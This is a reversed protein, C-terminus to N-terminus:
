CQRIGGLLEETVSCMRTKGLRNVSIRVERATQNSRLTFSNVPGAPVEMVGRTPEFTLTTAPLPGQLSVGTYQNATGVVLIRDLDAAAGVGKPADISCSNPEELAVTCDCTARDTVGFCWNTADAYNFVLSVRTNLMISQARAQQIQDNLSTAANIVRRRDLTDRFSPATMIALIGLIVLAVLVEILTFGKDRRHRPSRPFSLLASTM